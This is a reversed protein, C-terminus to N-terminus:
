VFNIMQDKPRLRTSLKREGHALDIVKDHDNTKKGVKKYFEIQNSTGQTDMIRKLRM